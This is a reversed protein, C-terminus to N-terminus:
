RVLPYFQSILSRKQNARRLPYSDYIGTANSTSGQKFSKVAMDFIDQDFSTRKLSTLDQFAKEYIKGQENPQGMESTGMYM